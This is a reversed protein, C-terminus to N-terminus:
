ENIFAWPRRIGACANDIAQCAEEVTLQEYHIGKVSPYCLADAIHHEIDLFRIASFESHGTHGTLLRGCHGGICRPTGCNEFDLMNFGEGLDRLRVKGVRRLEAKLQEAHELNAM